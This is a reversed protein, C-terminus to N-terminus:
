PKFKSDDIKANHKVSKVYTVTEGMGPNEAVTKFPIMVGDVNRYDSMMTSFPTKQASTSSVIVSAFKVPLFTKTSIYYTVANAEEPKIRVVYTEEGGVKETKTIEAKANDKKWDIIGYFNANYRADELKQGTYIEPEAFTAKEGGNTGDFYEEIAAINKGLASIETKSFNWNPAKAYSAGKGKLGQSVFDIEFETVRSNLKRWNAEGGLAEITKAMVEGVSIQPAATKASEGVLKFAVNGQPQVLTIGNPKSEASRNVKVAFSDPLGLSSFLDKEKEILPYPPQDGVVLSTKGDVDKIEIFTGKNQQAEYRGILEKASESSNSKAGARPLTFNGQPQELYLSDDKFTAFFGEPAGSLKYRDGDIKELTYVPQNPVIAVLKGDVSKIEIDFGAAAFTYKGIEKAQETAAIQTTTESKNESLMGDAIIPILEGGLPSGSVNTLMVFGLNEDPLFAVMSNFGDINGGHQIVKKGKYDQVFWGLAYSFKGDPTIKQQPTTWEAFGKESVLRKDGIAGKNLIFKLWKAMDNASSNISGAPAIASIDRTPKNITQKTDFNYDYGLSFDKAKQMSPISISSNTMGIPAFIKNEVFKEWGTKQVKSVIEGATLYMVNQYLFKEGLKGIPKAEGAVKIIEERSLKGTYWGLDTRNLGSSHTLLNRVTIKENIEADNIKFYPIYKRPSEDLSLKGEDQSMLVSLATFAKTASGIAFQTDATVPIQKEFNKYGFGKSLVVEGDKVIALSMGPIGLEKRRAEIKEEIKALRNQLDGSTQTQTTQASATQSFTSIFFSFVLLFSLIPSFTKKM